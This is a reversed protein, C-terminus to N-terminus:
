GVVGSEEGARQTQLPPYLPPFTPLSDAAEGQDGGGRGRDPAPAATNGPLDIREAHQGNKGGYRYDEEEKDDQRM